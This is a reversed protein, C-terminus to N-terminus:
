GFFCANADESVVGRFEEFYKVTPVPDYSHWALDSRQWFVKWHKHKKIYTTKAVPTEIKEGTNKWYPRIEFIVVSQGDLQYALDVEHRISPPPRHQALFEDLEKECRRIEFESIAM